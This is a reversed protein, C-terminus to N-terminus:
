DDRRNVSPHLEVGDEGTAEELTHSLKTTLISGADVFSRQYGMTTFIVPVGIARGADLIKVLESMTETQESGLTRDPEVWLRAVDIALIAPRKGFGVRGAFGREAYWAVLEKNDLSLPGMNSTVTSM